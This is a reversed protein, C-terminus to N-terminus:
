YTPFALASWTPVPWEGAECFCASVVNTQPLLSVESLSRPWLPLILSSSPPKPGCGLSARTKMPWPLFCSMSFCPNWSYRWGPRQCVSSSLLCHSFTLYVSLSRGLETEWLNGDSVLDSLKLFGDECLYTWPPEVAYLRCAVFVSLRSRQLIPPSLPSFNKEPPSPSISPFLQLCLKCPLHFSAKVFAHHNPVNALSSLCNRLNSLGRKYDSFTM